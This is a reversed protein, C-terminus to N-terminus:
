DIIAIADVEILDDPSLTAVGLVVDAPKHDGFLAIRPRKLLRCANTANTISSTSQSGPSRRLARVPLLLHEASIALCRARRFLLIVLALLSAM